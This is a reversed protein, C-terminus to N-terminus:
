NEIDNTVRKNNSSNILRKNTTGPIIRFDDFESSTIKSWYLSIPTGQQRKFSEFHIFRRILGKNGNGLEFRTLPLSSDKSSPKFYHLDKIDEEHLNTILQIDKIGGTAILLSQAVSDDMEQNFFEEIIYQFVVDLSSPTAPRLLPTNHNDYIKEDQLPSSLLLYDDDSDYNWSSSNRPSNSDSAYSASSLISNDDYQYCSDISYADDDYYDDDGYSYGDCESDMTSINPTQM